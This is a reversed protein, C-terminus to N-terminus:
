LVMKVAPHQKLALYIDEREVESELMLDLNLSVYKKTSSQKSFGVEFSKDTIIESIAQRIATEQYGIVKYAWECPYVFSVKEDADHLDMM